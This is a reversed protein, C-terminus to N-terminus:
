ASFIVYIRTCTPVPWEAVTQVKLPDTAIGSESIVHGLFSVSKRFLACKEPELKLGAAHLRDLVLSMRRLHEEPTSSCLIINDLYVLCIELHLGTLVIDMLRQFTAGANCLGFPITRFKFMVRPCIFVTKNADDPDVKIEHYSSRLDFTSFWRASAMAESCTDIRPLPYALTTHFFLFKDHRFTIAVLVHERPLLLFTFFHRSKPSTKHQGWATL